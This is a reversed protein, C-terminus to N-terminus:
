PTKHKITEKLGQIITLGHLLIEAFDSVPIGSEYPEFDHSQFRVWPTVINLTLKHGQTHIAIHIGRETVNLGDYKINTFKRKTIM